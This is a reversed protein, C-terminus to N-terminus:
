SRAANGNGDGDSEYSLHINISIIRTNKYCSFVVWVSYLYVALSYNFRFYVVKWFIKVLPLTLLMTFAPNIYLFTTQQQNLKGGM